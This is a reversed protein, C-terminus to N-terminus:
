ACSTFTVPGTGEVEVGGLDDAWTDLARRLEADDKATEMQVTGRVCVEDGDEWAVYRDGAWGAAARRLENGRLATELVLLLGFEGIVGQDFVTGEAAPDAVAALADGALYREPHLLHESTAPPQAFAQDVRANGGEDLLRDVFQPGVVYPFALLSLLVQPVDDGIDGSQNESAAQARERDSLTKLYAQEIRVADGEVLGSFATEAEDDRDELHPRDLEFHQDQLAHALEHVLTSRVGATFEAGRVVLENKEYDYFGLVANGLLADVAEELDVDDDLLGLARLVKASKEVEAKDTDDEDRLRTRFAADDLLTAKVPEKFRLGRAREVFPQLERVLRDIEQETVTTSPGAATTSTPRGSTVNDTDDERAVAAFLGGVLLVAVVVWLARAAKEM